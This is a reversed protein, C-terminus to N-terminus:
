TRESLEKRISELLKGNEKRAKAVNRERIAEYLTAHYPMSGGFPDEIDLPFQWFRGLYDNLFTIMSQMVQNHCLSYLKYHFAKDENTQVEGAQVKAMLIEELAGLEDLEEDTAKHIVMEIIEKEMAKRAELIELIQEKEQAFGLLEQIAEAKGDGAGVYLGKGNKVEIVNRAELTKIAERLATRSVQMMEMFQGQSPLKEGPKLGHEQIYDSIYQIIESQLSARKIPKQM